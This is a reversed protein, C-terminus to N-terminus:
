TSNHTDGFDRKDSGGIMHGAEKEKESFKIM